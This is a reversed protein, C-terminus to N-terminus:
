FQFYIFQQVDYIEGYCGYLLITFLMIMILAVRFWWEQRFFLDAVDRGKYKYHDVTFLGFISVILVNMENKAVGLGYLSGDFLIIWNNIRMMNFFVQIANKMTGARFFLWSFTIFGFTAATQLLHRSFCNKGATDARIVIENSVWRALFRNVFTMFLCRVKRITDACVQYLGNLIGWVIFALSAGHWLGSIGFVTLLNCEKKVQGKRSGGLPIYLYDRFWGSLSIHWRRWFEKVSRSYYPAEFNDLLRIGMILASGRAITSYGHFDCYIQISFFCTAAVIYFGPYAQSNGYVTNVLIAARDAIVMKLFMGYLVLLLGKRLNEYEFSHQKRLQILLNGSREIPGAVLQPFFSVFLAYRLFNKEAKIERRYVDILYGLAQLIYFSIGVPLIPEDKWVIEDAGAYRLIRNFHHLAFSFYKFYGLVALNILLCAALCIKEGRRGNKQSHHLKELIRGGLYTVATCSFLLLVYAPNWQMYFYYSAILLWLYRTKKPLLYYVIVAAPLFLIYQMTHFLMLRERGGGGQKKQRSEIKETWIVAM